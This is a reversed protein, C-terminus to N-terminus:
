RQFITCKVETQSFCPQNNGTIVSYEWDLKLYTSSMTLSYDFAHCLLTDMNKPKKDPAPNRNKFNQDPVSHCIMESGNDLTPVLGLSALLWGWSNRLSRLWSELSCLLWALPLTMLPQSTKSSPKRNTNQALVPFQCSEYKSNWTVNALGKWRQYIYDFM